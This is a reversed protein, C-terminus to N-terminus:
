GLRGSLVKQRVDGASSVTVLQNRGYNLYGGIEWPDATTRVGSGDANVFGDHTVSPKFREADLQQALAACPAFLTATFAVVAALRVIAPVARHSSMMIEGSAHRGKARQM